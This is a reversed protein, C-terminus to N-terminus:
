CGTSGPSYIRGAQLCMTSVVKGAEIFEITGVTGRPTVVARDFDCRGQRCAELGEQDRYFQISTSPRGDTHEIIGVCFITDLTAFFATPGAIVSADFMWMANGALGPDSCDLFARTEQEASFSVIEELGLSPRASAVLILTGILAKM